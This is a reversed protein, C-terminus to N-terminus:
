KDSPLVEIFCTDSGAEWHKVVLIDKGPHLATIVGSGNNSVCNTPFWHVGKSSCNDPTLEYGVLRKEGVKMTLYSELFRIREAKIHTDLVEVFCTDKPGDVHEIVLTDKGCKSARVVTGDFSINGQLVKDVYGKITTNSPTYRIGLWKGKGRDLKIYKETFEIREAKIYNPDKVTEEKKPEFLLLLINAIGVVAVAALVMVLWKWNFSPKERYSRIENIRRRFTDAFGKEGKFVKIRQEIPIQTADKVLQAVMQLKKVTESNMPQGKTELQKLKWENLDLFSADELKLRNSQEEKPTLCLYKLLRGLSYIDMLMVEKRKEVDSDYFCRDYYGSESRPVSFGASYVSELLESRSDVTDLSVGLDKVQGYDIVTALLNSWDDKDPRSKYVIINEPKLDTHVSGTEHLNYIGWAAKEVIDLKADLPMFDYIDEHWKMLANHLNEGVALEMVFYWNLNNDDDISDRFAETIPKVLNLTMLRQEKEVDGLRNINAQLKIIREPEKQFNRLETECDEYSYKIRNTEKIRVAGKPFFEKMVYKKGDEAREVLYTYSFGGSGMHVRVTFTAEKGNLDHTKIVTDLPLPFKDYTRNEM